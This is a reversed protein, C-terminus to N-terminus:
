KSEKEQRAIEKDGQVKIAKLNKISLKPLLDLVKQYPTKTVKKAAQRQKTDYSHQKVADYSIDFPRTALANWDAIVSKLDKNAKKSIDRVGNYVYETLSSAKEVASNALKLLESEYDYKKDM